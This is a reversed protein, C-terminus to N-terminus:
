KGEGTCYQVYSQRKLEDAGSQNTHPKQEGLRPNAEPMKRIGKAFVRAEPQLKRLDLRRCVIVERPFELAPGVLFLGAL